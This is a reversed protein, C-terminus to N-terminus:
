ASALTRSPAVQNANKMLYILKLRVLTLLSAQTARITSWRKIEVGAQHDEHASFM